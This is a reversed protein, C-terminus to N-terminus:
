TDILWGLCDRSVPQSMIQSMMMQAAVDHGNVHKCAPLPITQEHGEMRYVDHLVHLETQDHNSSASM